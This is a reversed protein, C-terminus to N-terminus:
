SGSRILEALERAEPLNELFQNTYLESPEPIRELDDGSALIDISSQWKEDGMKGFYEEYEPTNYFDYIMELKRVELGHNRDPSAEIIYDMAEDMNDKTWILGRLTARLFKEVLEPRNEVIDDSTYIVNGHFEVGYDRVPMAHTPMGQEELTLAQGYFFGFIADVGGSALLQVESGRGVNVFEIDDGTLGGSNLLPEVLAPVNAPFWSLKKGEMDAPETIGSEELTIVSFPTDPQDAMVTVVPLGAGRAKIFSDANSVGFHERGTAILVENQQGSSAPRIEVDLGEEAYFGQELAAFYQAHMAWPTFNLRLIVEENAEASTGGALSAFGAVLCAAFGTLTRRAQRKM